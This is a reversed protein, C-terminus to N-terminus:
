APAADTRWPRKVPSPPILAAVRKEAELLCVARLRDPARGSAGSKARWVPGLYCIERGVLQLGTARLRERWGVSDHIVLDLGHWRARYPSWPNLAFLWLRGGPELVRACEELLNDRGTELAHQLV